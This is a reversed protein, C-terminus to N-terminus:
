EASFEGLVARIRRLVRSKAQRVAAQSMHLDLAVAQTSQQEIATRWFAQWTGAEFEDKVLNMARHVVGASESRDLEDRSEDTFPDPLEAWRLQASSGGQALPTRQRSRHWDLVKHRTITWLWGRFSGQQRRPDFRDIGRAVSAFVEQLIDAAFQSELGLRRCWHFVLPGYLKVAVQWATEDRRKLQDVLSPSTSLSSPM